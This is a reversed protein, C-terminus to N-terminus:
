GVPQQKQKLPKHIRRHHHLPQQRPLDGGGPQQARLVRHQGLVGAGADVVFICFSTRPTTLSPAEITKSLLDDLSIGRHNQACIM